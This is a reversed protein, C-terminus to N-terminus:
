GFRRFEIRLLCGKGMMFGVSSLRIYDLYRDVVAAGVLAEAEKRKRKLNGRWLECTRVYDLRDNRLSVVEFWDKCALTIEHLFSLESEPFIDNQMFTSARTPDFDLYSITQLSLKGRPPLWSACRQFFERYIGIKEATTHRHSAFHELACISVIGDYPAGPQHDTWSEERVEVGPWRKGRVYSAQERSLTLGVCEGALDNKRLHNLMSGWGCGVELMRAGPRAGACRAHYALKHVQAEDLTRADDPGDWLACSYTLTPDLWLEYFANGIDYHHRIGDVSGGWHNAQETM